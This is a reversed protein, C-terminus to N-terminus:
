CFTLYVANRKYYKRTLCLLPNTHIKVLPDVESTYLKQITTIYQQSHIPSIPWSFSAHVYHLVHGKM